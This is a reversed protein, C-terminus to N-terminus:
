RPVLAGDDAAQLRHRKTLKDCGCQSSSDNAATEQRSWRGSCRCIDADSGAALVGRRCCRRSSLQVLCSSVSCMRHILWMLRRVVYGVLWMMGGTVIDSMLWMMCSVVISVSRVVTAVDCVVGVMVAARVLGVAVVVVFVPVVLVLARGLAFFVQSICHGLEVEVVHPKREYDGDPNEEDGVGLDTAYM